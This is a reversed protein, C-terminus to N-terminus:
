LSEIIVYIVNYNLKIGQFREELYPLLYVRTLKVSQHLPINTSELM